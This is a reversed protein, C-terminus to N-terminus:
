RAAAVVVQNGGAEAASKCAGEARTILSGPDDGIRFGSVGLSVTVPYGRDFPFVEVNRRLKRAVREAGDVSTEVLIVTIGGTASPGFADSVRTSNQVIEGVTKLLRRDAPQPEGGEGDVHPDVTVAILALDNGYRGARAIESAVRSYLPSRTESASSAGGTQATGLSDIDTRNMWGGGTAAARLDSTAAAHRVVRRAALVVFVTGSAVSLAGLLPLWVPIDDLLGPLIWGVLGSIAVVATAASLM